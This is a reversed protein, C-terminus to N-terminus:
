ALLLATFTKTLSGIEYETHEDSGFGAYTVTDGDIVALSVRDLAGPLLPRARAALAAEGTVVTSLSPPNPQALVGLLGAVAALALAVVIRTRRKPHKQRDQSQM